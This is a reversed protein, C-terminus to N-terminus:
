AGVMPNGAAPNITPFPFYKYDDIFLGDPNALHQANVVYSTVSEGLSRTYGFVARPQGLDVTPSLPATQSAGALDISAPLKEPPRETGAAVQGTLSIVLVLISVAIRAIKM